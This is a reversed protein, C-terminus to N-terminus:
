FRTGEHFLCISNLIIGFNSAPSQCPERLLSEIDVEDPVFGYDIGIPGAIEVRRLDLNLGILRCGATRLLQSTIEGLLGLGIVTPLIKEPSPRWYTKCIHM